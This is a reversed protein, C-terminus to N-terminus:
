RGGKLDWLDELLSEADGEPGAKKMKHQSQFARLNDVIGAQSFFTLMSNWQHGVVIYKFDPLIGHCTAM